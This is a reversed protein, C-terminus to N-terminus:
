LLAVSKVQAWVRGGPALALAQASRATIAALLVTGATSLRVIVRGPATPWIRDVTAPLINLISTGTPAALALSVDRAHIRVRVSQGVQLAQDAVELTGGAFDLRALHDVPDVAAVTTFVVAGAEEDSSAGPGPTTLMEALTGHRTVQGAEMLVLRDALRAAEDLSHTVYLVSVALEDRVRELLPYIERRAPRDLAALPEDLLLLDPSRLLARGLAVRQCEGGSLDTTRRPLLHALGLLPVVEDWALHRRDAPTRDLAFRLNGAVDLHPFLGGDQFVYGLAREHVPTLRAGDQWVDPGIRVTGTFGEELGALCRLLTTKGAGSPGCVATFSGAPLNLDFALDFGSRALTGQLHLSM